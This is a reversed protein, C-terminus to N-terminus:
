YPDQTNLHRPLPDRGPLRTVQLWFEGIRKVAESLEELTSPKVLYSNAGLDYARDIDHPYDSGTFVVVPLRRFEPRQRIWQLVEWGDVRMKFDLLLLRPFPFRSRDQYPDDGRLYKMVEHGDCVVFLQHQMGIRAFARRILEVDDPCDDALLIADRTSM